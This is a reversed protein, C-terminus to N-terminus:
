FWDAAIITPKLSAALESSTSEFLPTLDELAARETPSLNSLLSTRTEAKGTVLDHIVRALENM